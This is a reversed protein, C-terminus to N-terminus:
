ARILQKRILMIAAQVEISRTIAKIALTKAAVTIELPINSTVPTVTTQATIAVTPVKTVLSLTRPTVTLASAAPVTVLMIITALM